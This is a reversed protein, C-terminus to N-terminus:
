DHKNTNTLTKGQYQGTQADLFAKVKGIETESMKRGVQYEAMMEIAKELTAVSGDHYYPWTLAVNRLTPTKFRYRDREVKTQAWRGNDSDTLGSKANMERDQFYNARQGMLEYSLGGMNVGAHCTACKYDKFIAYGEIQEATMANKDGKLYRDFPSNPTLLTKEYEAIADTITKENLGEPYSALFRKSFDADASLRAAIEDFSKSGMEVPNLPPGAAQDALTAARGDWFQVFNFVSNYSTPANIGGLQGGIGDSFQHNDVGATEIAHCSACSITGDGSLRTDHYLEKGLQVKAADVAVSDPIPRIPENKFEAAALENPYFQARHQKVWDLVIDTKASTLSSGWHALYYSMLPMTGDMVCKEVKALDVENVAVGAAVAKMMPEIDFSKYGEEVHAAILSKAVPLTAYFPLDPKATHCFVCGGDNMIETLQENVPLSKDPAQNVARYAVALGVLLVAGGLILKSNKKM